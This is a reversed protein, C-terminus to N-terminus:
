HRRREIRQLHQRGAFDLLAENLASVRRKSLDLEEGDELTVTLQRIRRVHRLNVLFSKHIRFFGYDAYEREISGLVGRFSYSSQLTHVTVTHLKSDFYLIDDLAIKILGGSNNIVFYPKDREASAAIIARVENLFLERDIPKMLYRWANVQYGELAYEMTSTVILIPVSLDLKRLAKATDIGNLPEMIMDLIVLNFRNGSRYAKILSLGDSYSTEEYEVGEDRLQQLAMSLKGADLDNDDCIAVRFVDMVWGM